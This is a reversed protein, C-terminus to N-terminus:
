YDIMRLIESKEIHKQVYVQSHISHQSANWVGVVHYNLALHTLRQIHLDHM